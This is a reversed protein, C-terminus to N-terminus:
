AIDLNQKNFASKPLFQKAHTYLIKTNRTPMGSMRWLPTFAVVLNDVFSLVPAGSSWLMPWM